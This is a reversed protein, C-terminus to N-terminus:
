RLSRAFQHGLLGADLCGIMMGDHEIVGTLFRQLGKNITAAPTQVGASAYRVIGYLDAVPLAYSQQEWQVLLLRAFTHRGTRPVTLAASIGLLEALAICPYLKGGVNVIGALGRADRHPLKHPLAHPAVLVFMSTPLALWEDGIRFVMSSSDHGADAGPPQRFHEAWERQYGSGVARQLNMQAAHSYVGCNRCHIHQQLLECSHDGRVGIRNWCDTMTQEVTM